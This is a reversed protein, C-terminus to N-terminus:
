KEHVLRESSTWVSTDELLPSPHHLSKVKKDFKKFDFGASQLALKVTEPTAKMPTSKLETEQADSNLAPEPISDSIDKIECHSM